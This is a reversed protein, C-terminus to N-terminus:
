YLCLHLSLTTVYQEANTNLDSGEECTSGCRKSADSKTLRLYHLIEDLSEKINSDDVDDWPEEQLGTGHDSVPFNRNYGEGTSGQLLSECDDQDLSRKQTKQLFKAYRKGLMNCLMM